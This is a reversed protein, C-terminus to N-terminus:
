EGRRTNRKKRKLLKLLEDAELTNLVDERELWGRQAVSIGWPLTEFQLKAHTDTNIAIKVGLEKARRVYRDELDLRLPYANIELATGTERAVQLVEEMDLQYGEREGIIRGTPHAIIHVYPNRMAAVIRATMVEKSNNFGSHISAVVVDLEELVEDPFDLTGDGHIDMETGHLVRFGKLERNLERIEAQQEKLREVTLGRAVALGQSHDTVAIYSLGRLRATEALETIGHAGDSWRSHVHLDGKIEERTVLQPLKGAQAAELEGRDERLVPPVFPLDLLRYVDEENEGGLRVNDEERFIGYENIKLGRKQAMERLRVNHAQSGTLYALAAGYSVPEVVRLDVQVGERITVSARTPGRMIVDHVQPLNLFAEMVSAPEPSTAVIDIDKISDRRRRISGAIEVRDLPAKQQLAAVLEEAAPLMRGLPQRERGRKVAQIGKLINEETKQQIGKIGILRHERAAQELEELSTIQLAEYIAKATKPGLDPVALLTFVGAPVEKKLQEHYAMTGSQLYEEIRTALDAGVGPIELLEKHSMQALDRNLGELNLAARRYARIKFINDQRIEMIDAIEEFMRAIERNKM